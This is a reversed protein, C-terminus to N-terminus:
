DQAGLGMLCDSDGCNKVRYDGLTGCVETSCQESTYCYGETHTKCSYGEGVTKSSAVNEGKSATSMKTPVAKRGSVKVCKGSPRVGVDRKRKKTAEVCAESGPELLPGYPV